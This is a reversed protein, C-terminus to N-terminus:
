GVCALVMGNVSVSQHFVYCVHCCVKVRILAWADEIKNALLLDVAAGAPMLLQFASNLMSTISLLDNLMRYCRHSNSSFIPRFLVCGQFWPLYRSLVRTLCHALYGAKWFPYLVPITVRVGLNIPDWTNGAEIIKMPFADHERFRHWSSFYKGPADSLAMRLCFNSLVAVRWHKGFFRITGLLRRM